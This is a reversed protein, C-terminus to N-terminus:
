LYVIESGRPEKWEWLRQMGRAPIPRIRRINRLAICWPGEAHYHCRLEIPLKDLEEWLYIEAIAIVCGYRMGKFAFGYTGGFKKMYEKSNGAHIAIPGRYGHYWTRNEIVKEKIAILHAYPQYITLAKM